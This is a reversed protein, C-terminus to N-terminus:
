SNLPILVSRILFAGDDGGDFQRVNRYFDPNGCQDAHDGSIEKEWVTAFVRLEDADAVRYGGSHRQQPFLQGRPRSFWLTLRTSNMEM